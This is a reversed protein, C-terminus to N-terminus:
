CLRGLDKAVADFGSYQTTHKDHFSFDGVKLPTMMQRYILDRTFASVTIGALTPQQVGRTAAATLTEVWRDVSPGMVDTVLLAVSDFFQVLQAFQARLAVRPILRAYVFNNYQFSVRSLEL